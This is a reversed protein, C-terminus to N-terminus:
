GRRYAQALDADYSQYAQDVAARRLRADVTRHDSAPDPDSSGFGNGSGYSSGGSGRSTSGADPEAMLGTGDCDDCDEGNIEGSGFCHPCQVEGDGVKYRNALGTEYQQYADRTARRDNVVPVRFGPRHLALPDSTRGDTIRNAQRSMASDRMTLSVRVSRGDKLIGREDFDDDNHITRNM